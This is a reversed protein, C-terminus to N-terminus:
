HKLSPVPSVKEPLVTSYYVSFVQKHRATQRAVDGGPPNSDVKYSSSSFLDVVDMFIYGDM